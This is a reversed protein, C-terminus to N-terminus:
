KGFAMMTKTEREETDNLANIRTAALFFRGDAYVTRSENFSAETEATSLPHKLVVKPAGGTPAIGSGGGGPPTTPYGGYPDPQQAYPGPPQNYPGPQQAYPGPSQPPGQPIPPIPPLHPRGPAHTM